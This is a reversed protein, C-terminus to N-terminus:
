CATGWGNLGGSRVFGATKINRDTDRFLCSKHLTKHEMFSRASDIKSNATKRIALPLDCPAQIPTEHLVHSVSRLRLRVGLDTWKPIRNPCLFLSFIIQPSEPLTTSITATLAGLFSASGCSEVAHGWRM